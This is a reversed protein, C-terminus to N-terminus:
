LQNKEISNVWLSILYLNALKFDMNFQGLFFKLFLKRLCNESSFHFIKVVKWYIRFTQALFIKAWASFPAWVTIFYGIPGFQGRLIQANSTMLCESWNSRYLRTQWIDVLYHLIVLHQCLFNGIKKWFNGLICGCGNIKVKFTVNILYGLLDDFIQAKQTLFNTVSFNWFDGM